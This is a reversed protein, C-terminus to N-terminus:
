DPDAADPGVLPKRFLLAYDAGIWEPIRRELQFGAATLEEVVIDPDIGMGARNAPVGRANPRGPQPDGELILLRGGPKLARYFSRAMPEPHTLMHYVMRMMVADCCAEPLNADDVSGAIAIVNQLKRQGAQRQIRTAKEEGLENAYVTGGDAVIEAFRFSFRADGAGIEAVTAGPKLELIEIAADIERSGRRARRERQPANVTDSGPAATGPAADGSGVPGAATVVVVVACTMVGLRQRFRESSAQQNTMGTSVVHGRGLVDPIPFFRTLTAHHRPAAHRVRPRSRAPTIVSRFRTM